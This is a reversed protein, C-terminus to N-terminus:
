VVLQDQPAKKAAITYFLCPFPRNQRAQQLSSLSYARFQRDASMADTLRTLLTAMSIVEHEDPAMWFRKSSETAGLVDLKMNKFSCVAIRRPSSDLVSLHAMKLHLVGQAM